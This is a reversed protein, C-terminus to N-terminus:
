PVNVVLTAVKGECTVTVNATGANTGSATVSFALQGAANTLGTPVSVTVFTTNSSALTCARGHPAFAAGGNVDVVTATVPVTAGLSGTNISGSPSLTVTNIAVLGVTVLVSDKAINGPGTGPTTSAIVYVLGTDAAVVAGTTPNISLKANSTAWTLTRGTLTGGVTDKPIGTFTPTEGFLLANPTIAITHAPVLSVNIIMTTSKGESTASITSSGPAV